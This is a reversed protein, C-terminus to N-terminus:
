RFYIKFFPNCNGGPKHYKYYYKLM